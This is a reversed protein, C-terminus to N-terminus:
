EQNRKAAIILYFVATFKTNRTYYKDFHNRTILSSALKNRPIM